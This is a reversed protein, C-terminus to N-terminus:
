IKSQEKIWEQLTKIKKLWEDTFEKTCKKFFAQKYDDYRTNINFTTITDLWDLQEISFNLPLIQALRSLDHTFPAVDNTHKIINAKLLKELVLHGLFLSWHRDGSQYLHQMTEADNDAMELWHEYAMQLKENM